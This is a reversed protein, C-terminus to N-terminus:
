LTNRIINYQSQVRGDSSNMDVLAERVAHWKRRTREVSDGLNDLHQVYSPVFTEPYSMRLKGVVTDNHEICYNHLCFAAEIVLTSRWFKPGRSFAGSQLWYGLPKSLGFEYNLFFSTLLM